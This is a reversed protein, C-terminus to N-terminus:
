KKVGVTKAHTPTVLIVEADQSPEYLWKATLFGGVGSAIVAFIGLMVLTSVPFRPVDLTPIFLAMISSSSEGLEKALDCREGVEPEPKSAGAQSEDQTRVPTAAESGFNLTATTGSASNKAQATVRVGGSGNGTAPAKSAGPAFAAESASTRATDALNVGGTVDDVAGKGIVAYTGSSKTLRSQDARKAPEAANFDFRVTEDPAAPRVAPRSAVPTPKGADQDVTYGVPKPYERTPPSPAAPAATSFATTAIGSSSPGTRSAARAASSHLVDFILRLERINRAKIWRNQSYPFVDDNESLKGKRVMLELVDLSKVGYARGDIKVAYAFSKDAM